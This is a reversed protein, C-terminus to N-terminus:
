GQGEGRFKFQIEGLGGYESGEDGARVSFRVRIMVQICAGEMARMRVFRPIAIINIFNIGM